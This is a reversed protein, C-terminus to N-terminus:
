VSKMVEVSGSVGSNGVGKGQDVGIVPPWVHFVKYCGVDFAAGGALCVFDVHVRCFWWQEWNGGSTGQGELRDGHVEDGLEGRGVVIVGYEGDSVVVDQFSADEDGTFFGDVRYTNCCEVGVMDEGVIPDGQFDDAVM